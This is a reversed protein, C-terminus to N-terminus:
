QFGVLGDKFLFLKCCDLAWGKVTEMKKKHVFKQNKELYKPTLLHWKGRAGNRATAQYTGTWGGTSLCWDGAQCPVLVYVKTLFSFVKPKKKLHKKGKM